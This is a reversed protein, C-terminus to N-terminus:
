ASFTRTRVTPHRLDPLSNWATPGAAAFARTCQSPHTTCDASSSCSIASSSTRRRQLRSCLSRRPISASPEPTLSSRDCGAQVSGAPTSGALAPRKSAATVTWTRLQRHYLDVTSCCETGAALSGHDDKVCLGPDTQLLGSFFCTKCVNSVNGDLSPDSPVTVGLLRVQDKTRIMEAILRLSPPCGSLLALNDM